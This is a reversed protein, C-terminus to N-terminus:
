ARLAEAAEGHCLRASGSMVSIRSTGRMTVEDRWAVSLALLVVLPTVM